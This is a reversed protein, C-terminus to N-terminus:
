EHLTVKKAKDLKGPQLGKEAAIKWSLLQIPVIELIPSSFEDLPPLALNFIRKGRLEQDSGVLVVKGGFEVIDHALRLNIDRTRGNMAFVVATFDPTVLELPGHRFQGGSMGEAHMKAAEKLILAGAMASALSPGRALLSLCDVGGLFDVLGDIRETWGGLFTEMAEVAEYLGEVNRKSMTSTLCMALLSAVAITATHTKSAPGREEGGYLFLALDSNKALYNEADNTISAILSRGGFESLLKKVEVTEGSQSAVVVLVQSSIVGGYYHLLESTEVMTASLGHEVLYICAPYLAFYSSGMGTLLVLPYEGLKMARSVSRLLSEDELYRDLTARLVRPQSFIEELFCDM